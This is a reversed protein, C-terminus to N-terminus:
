FERQREKPTLYTFNDASGAEATEDTKRARLFVLRVDWVARVSVPFRGAM